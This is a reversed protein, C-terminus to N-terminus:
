FSGVVQNSSSRAVVANTLSNILVLDARLEDAGVDEDLVSTAVNSRQLVYSVRAPQVGTFTRSGLPLLTDDSGFLGSDAGMLTGRLTYVLGAQMLNRDLESFDIQGQATIVARDTGEDVIVTLLPKNTFTAM